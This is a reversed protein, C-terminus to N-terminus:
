PVMPLLGLVLPAPTGVRSVSLRRLRLSTMPLGAGVAGGGDGSGQTSM